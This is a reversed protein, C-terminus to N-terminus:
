DQFPADVVVRSFGSAAQTGTKYALLPVSIM